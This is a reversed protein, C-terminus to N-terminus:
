SETCVRKVRVLRATDRYGRPAITHMLMQVCTLFEATWTLTRHIISVRLCGTHVASQATHGDCSAKVLSLLGFKGHSFDWRSLVTTAYHMYYQYKCNYSTITKQLECQPLLLRDAYGLTLCLWKKREKKREKKFLM